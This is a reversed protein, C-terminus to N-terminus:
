RALLSLRDLRADIEAMMQRYAPGNVGGFRRQFEAASLTEPLDAAAPMLDTEQVGAALRAQLALPHRTIQLGFRSGARDAALDHFSFGSGGQSDAMEKYLGIADAFAAGGEAALAASVLFHQPTDLRGLLTVQLTLAMADPLLTPLVPQNVLMALAMLAACNEREASAADISRQRALAFVVPLLRTISVQSHPAFENGLRSLAQAYVLLRALEAAPLLSTALSPLSQDPWAYTLVLQQPGFSVQKLLRQALEGPGRLDLTALLGSVAQEALWGPVRLRGLHLQEVRPLASDERLVADLNLWLGAPLGALALSVRLHGQGSQLEVQARTEGYRHGAQNILLVLDRQSLKLVRAIGPLKGRPSHHQLLQMARAIDGPNIASTQTVLPAPELCLWMGSLTGLVLVLSCVALGRLVFRM